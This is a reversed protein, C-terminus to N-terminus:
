YSWGPAQWIQVPGTSSATAIYQGSPSWSITLPSNPGVLSVVPLDADPFAADSNGTAADLIGAGDEGLWAIYKGNPSWCLSYADLDGQSQWITAGTAADWVVINGDGDTSAIEEGSPSWVSATLGDRDGGIYTRVVQGTLGNWIVENSVILNGVPSWAAGDILGDAPTYTSIQSGSAVGYVTPQEQGYAVLYEDNPSWSIGSAWYGLENVQSGSSASWIQVDSDYGGAIYQGNPSWSVSDMTSDPVQHSAIVAGDSARLVESVFNTLSNGTYGSDAFETGDPSWAISTVITGSPPQITRLLQVTGPAAPPTSAPPTPVAANTVDISEVKSNVANIVIKHDSVDIVVRGNLTVIVEESTGISYASDVVGGGSHHRIILLTENPNPQLNTEIDAHLSFIGIPTVLGVSGTVSISGSPSINFSASFQIPLDPEYAVGVGVSTHSCAATLTAILAATLVFATLRTRNGLLKM